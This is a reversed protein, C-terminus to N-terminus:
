KNKKNTKIKCYRKSSTLTSNQALTKINHKIHFSKTSQNGELRPYHDDCSSIVNFKSM